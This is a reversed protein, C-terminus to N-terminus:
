LSEVVIMSWWPGKSDSWYWESVDTWIQKEDYIREHVRLRTEGRTAEFGDQRHVITYGLGRFCESAPHLRRTKEPVFRMVTTRNGETFRAAHEFFPDEIKDPRLTTPWGPFDVTRPSAQLPPFLSVLAALLLAAGYARQGRWPRSQRPDHGAPAAYGLSLVIVGFVVVGVAEHMGPLRPVRGTELLFLSTIRVVNGIILSLSALLSWYLTTAFSWRRLAALLFVLLLGVWLMKLGACPADVAVQQSGNLLTTGRSDIQLLFAALKASFARIPYGLYFQLSSLGPLSLLLLGALGPEFTRGRWASLFAAVALAALGARLLDPLFPRSVAYLTLALATARLDLSRPPRGLSALVPLLALAWPEELGDGIRGTYWPLLPTLVLLLAALCLVTV